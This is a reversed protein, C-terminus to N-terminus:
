LNTKEAEESFIQRLVAIDILAKELEAVVKMPKRPFRRKYRWCECSEDKKAVTIHKENCYGYDTRLFECYAKKYLAELNGCSECKPKDSMKMEECIRFHFIDMIYEIESYTM